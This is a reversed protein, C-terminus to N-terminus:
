GAGACFGDEGEACAHYGGSTFFQILRLLESLNIQWDRPNYDSDHPACSTDGTGPAYGDETGAECHFGGSTFFQVVRLLESLSIQGDQNQDATSAPELDDDDFMSTNGNVDTATARITMGAYPTLDVASSFIGAADATVADLFTRGEGAEDAFLEVVALPAATGQLPSLMSIVPAAMGANAGDGLVIGPGGNAFISNRSLTNGLAAPGAIKVGARGNYAISNGAGAEAGGVLSNVATILVGYQGNGIPTVGDAGLGILNGQVSNGLNDPGYIAVGAVSNGSIVNGAGPLGVSNSPTFGQMLVGIGNPLANMGSIDVGILNGVVANNTALETLSGDLFIGAVRNGSIVNAAGLETGGILYGSGGYICALGIENPLAVTGTVDTGVLNGQILSTGEMGDLLIGIAHGAVVNREGPNSGGLVVRDDLSGFQVGYNNASLARTGSADTGIFNGQITTVSPTRPHVLIDAYENCSIVNGQGPAPGGITVAGGGVTVGTDYGNGLAVMGTIDLGIYNGQIVNGDGEAYVGGRRNGSIINRDTPNDGGVVNDM